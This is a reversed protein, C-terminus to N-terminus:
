QEPGTRDLAVHDRGVELGLVLQPHRAVEVVVQPRDQALGAADDDVVLLHDLQDGLQGAAGEGLGVLRTPRHPADLPHGLDLGPEERTGEPPAVCEGHDLRDPPHHRRERREPEALGVRRREGQRGVLRRPELGVVGRREEGPHQGVVRPHIGLAQDEVVGAVEADGDQADVDVAALRGVGHDPEVLRLLLAVSAAVADAHGQGLDPADGRGLDCADDRRPREVREAVEPLAGPHRARDHLVEHHGTPEVM